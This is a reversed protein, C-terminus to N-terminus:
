PKFYEIPINQYDGNPLARRITIPIVRDGLEAMAIDLSTMASEPIEVFAPAGESLQLARAGMIRAKEFRTLVPPGVMVRDDDGRSPEIEVPDHPADIEVIPRDIIARVREDLAASEEDNMEEVKFLRRYADIAKVLGPDPDQAAAGEGAVGEPDDMDGAVPPDGSYEDGDPLPEPGAADDSPAAGARGGVAADQAGDAPAATANSGAATKNNAEPM